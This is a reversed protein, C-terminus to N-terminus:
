YRPVTPLGLVHRAFPLGATDFNNAGHNAVAHVDRWARQMPDDEVMGHAGVSVVLRDVAQVCLRVAFSTDRTARSLFSADPMEGTEIARSLVSSDARLLAVAADIEVASDAIRQQRQVMNARDPRATTLEIFAELAGRAIGLAPTSINFPFIPWLPLHYMPSPNVTSGPTLRGDCQMTDLTFANPVFAGVVRIDNSSSGRLGPAYWTDLIQWERRPLLTWLVRSPKADAAEFIPTALLIWQCLDSGSSFQWDGEIWYGGDVPRGRGTKFAFASAILTTPDEGWVAEQAEPPFMALCWAHCALVCQTWASSGCARGLVQCLEVQTHGYDLQCGGYRAPQLVRFLGAAHFEAVTEDPLHRLEETQRARERLRPVLAVARDIMEALTPTCLAVAM